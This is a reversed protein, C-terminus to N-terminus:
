IVYKGIIRRSAIRRGSPPRPTANKEWWKARKQKPTRPFAVLKPSSHFDIRPSYNAAKHWLGLSIQFPGSSCLGLTLKSPLSVSQSTLHNNIYNGILYWVPNQRHAVHISAALDLALSITQEVSVRNPTERSNQREFAVLQIPKTTLKTWKCRFGKSAIRFRRFNVLLWVISAFNQPFTQRITKNFNRPFKHTNRHLGPMQCLEVRVPQNSRGGKPHFGGLQKKSTNPGKVSQRNTLLWEVSVIGCFPECNISAIGNSGCALQKPSILIGESSSEESVFHVGSSTLGNHSQAGIRIIKAGGRLKRHKNNWNKPGM